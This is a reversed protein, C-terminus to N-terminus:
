LKVEFTEFGWRQVEYGVERGAFKKVEDTVEDVRTKETTSVEARSM